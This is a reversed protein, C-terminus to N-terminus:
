DKKKSSLNSLGNGMRVRSALAEELPVEGIFTTHLPVVGSREYFEMAAQNAVATYTTFYKIGRKRFFARAEGLLDTAMGRRRYDRCVMLGSISGVRKIRWFSAQTRVFVTIYGVVKGHATAIFTAGDETDIFRSFYDRIDQATLEDIQFFEKHHASYEEFFDRSIVILRDLDDDPM